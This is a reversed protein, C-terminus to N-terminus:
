ASPQRGRRGATHECSVRAMMGVLAQWLMLRFAAELEVQM